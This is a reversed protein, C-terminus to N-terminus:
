RRLFKKLKSKFSSATFSKKKAKKVKKKGKKMEREKKKKKLAREKSKKRAEARIKRQKVSEEKKSIVEIEQNVGALIGELKAIEKELNEVEKGKDKLQMVEGCEPCTYQYQLANEENSEIQCNPCHFFKETKRKNLQAKMGDLSGLLHDRFKILGKGTNLTWFYIYWGGKKRDKKRTFSVIGEDGLKYLINRTQNITLKLKKAILFENVNKKDHLLDVIPSAQQGAISSVVTKLLNVQM